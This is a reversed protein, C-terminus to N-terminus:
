DILLLKRNRRMIVSANLKLFLEFHFIIVLWKDAAATTLGVEVVIVKAMMDLASEASEDDTCFASDVM